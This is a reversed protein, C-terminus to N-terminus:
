ISKSRDQESEQCEIEFVISKWLKQFFLFTSLMPVFYIGVDSCLLLIPDLIETFNFGYILFYPEFISRAVVDEKIFKRLSRYLEKLENELGKIENLHMQIHEKEYSIFREDYGNSAGDDARKLIKVNGQHFMLLSKNLSIDNEVQEIKNLVENM